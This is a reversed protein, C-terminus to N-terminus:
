RPYHSALATRLSALCGHCEYSGGGVPKLNGPSRQALRGSTSKSDFLQPFLVRRSIPLLGWGLVMSLGPFGSAFLRGKAFFLYSLGVPSMIGAGHSFGIVEIRRPTVGFHVRKWEGVM